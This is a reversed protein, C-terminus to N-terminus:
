APWRAVEARTLAVRVASTIEERAQAEIRGVTGAGLRHRARALPDGLRLRAAVGATVMPPLLAGAGRIRDRLPAGPHATVARLLGPAFEGSSAAPDRAAGRGARARSIATAAARWVAGVDAGSVRVAPISFCAARRALGGATVTRSLTTVALRNDKCVFVVPLAWVSVLNLSEMLMGQNAAGEGFFAVAVAGQRLHAAALVFGCAMPGTAEVIGSSAALRDPDFLHMHGGMGGCLGEPAGLMELVLATLNIGRAVLPPTSRHDLALSDGEVLHDVVGAVAAEEGIGLHLEGSIRGQQWLSGLQVELQRIRAMQLFLRALDAGGVGPV